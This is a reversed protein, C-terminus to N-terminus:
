PGEEVVFTVKSGQGSPTIAYTVRTARKGHKQCAETLADATARVRALDLSGGVDTAAKREDVTLSAGGVIEVVVPQRERVTYVLVVGRPTLSARVEVDDVGGRAFLNQIDRRVTDPQFTGGIKTDLTGALTAESLRERGRFCVGAVKAGIMDDRTASKKEDAPLPCPDVVKAVTPRAVPPSLSATAPAGPRCASLFLALVLPAAVHRIRM